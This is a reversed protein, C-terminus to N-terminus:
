KDSDSEDSKDVISVRNFDSQFLEFYMEEFVKQSRLIKFLPWEHLAIESIENEAILRKIFTCSEEHKDEICSIALQFLTQTSSWDFKNLINKCKDIKDSYKYALCLNITLMRKRKDNSHRHQNVLFEGIKIALSYEEKILLEYIIHILYSDSLAFEDEDKELFKRWLTFGLKTIMEFMISFTSDLYERDSGLKTGLMNDTVKLGATSCVKLYQRSIVGDAHVFLNRRETIEIFNPWIDLKRLTNMETKTELAKFQDTHSSRLLSEIEKEITDIKIEEISEFAIIDEFKYQINKSILDPRLQYFARILSGLFYDFESVYSILFNRPVITKAKLLHQFKITEAKFSRIQSFHVNFTIKSKTEDNFDHVEIEERIPDMFSDLIKKNKDIENDLSEILTSSSEKLGDLAFLSKLITEGVISKTKAEM